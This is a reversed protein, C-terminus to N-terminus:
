KNVNIVGKNIAECLEYKKLALEFVTLDKIPILKSETGKIKFVVSKAVALAKLTKKDIVMGVFIHGDTINALHRVAYYTKKETVIKINEPLSESKYESWIVVIVEVSENRQIVTLSLESEDKYHHEIKDDYFEIEFDEARVSLTLLILLLTKM